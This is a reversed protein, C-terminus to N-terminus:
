IEIAKFFQFHCEEKMGSEDVVTVKLNNGEVEIEENDGRNVNFDYKDGHEDKYKIRIMDKNPYYYVETPMGDVFTFLGLEKNFGIFKDWTITKM